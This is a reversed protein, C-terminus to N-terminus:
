EFVMCLRMAIMLYLRHFKIIKVSEMQVEVEWIPGFLYHHRMKKSISTKNKAGHALEPDVEGVAGAEFVGAFEELDPIKYLLM